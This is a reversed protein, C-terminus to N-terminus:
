SPSTGAGNANKSVVKGTVASGDPAQWQPPGALPSFSATTSAEPSTPTSTAHTFAFSGDAQLTCAYIQSGFVVSEQLAGLGSTSVAHNLLTSSPGCRAVPPLPEHAVRHLLWQPDSRLAALLTPDDVRVTGTM